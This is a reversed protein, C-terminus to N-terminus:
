FATSPCTVCPSLGPTRFAGAFKLLLRDIAAAEEGPACLLTLDVDQTLRPQGWRQLAVGGIFCFRDGARGLFEQIELAASFLGKM